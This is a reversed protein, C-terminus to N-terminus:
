PNTTEGRRLFCSDGEGRVLPVGASRLFDVFSLGLTATEEKRRAPGVIHIYSDLKRTRENWRGPDDPNIWLSVSWDKMDRRAMATAQGPNWKVSQVQDLSVRRQIFRRDFFQFGFRIEVPQEGCPATEVFPKGVFYGMMNITLSGFGGESKVVSWIGLALIGLWLISAIIAEQNFLNHVAVVAFLLFVVTISSLLVFEAMTRARPIPMEVSMMTAM